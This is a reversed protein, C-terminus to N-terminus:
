SPEQPGPFTHRRYSAKHLDSVQVTLNLRMGETTRPFARALLAEMASSIQAKVADSRGELVQVDLTVFARDPAGDAVRFLPHLVVRSKLDQENFLGTAVLGQHLQRLLDAWDPTDLLNNSAELICHPM